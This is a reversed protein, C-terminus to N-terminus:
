TPCHRATRNEADLLQAGLQAGVAPIMDYTAPARSGPVQTGDTTLPSANDLLSM